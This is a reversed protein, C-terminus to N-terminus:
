KLQLYVALFSYRSDYIFNPDFQWLKLEDFPPIGFESVQKAVFDSRSAYDGPVNWPEYGEELMERILLKAANPHPARDAIVLITPYAVGFVPECNYVPEWEYVGPKTDRIKSFTTFGVPPNEQTVDGVSEAIRSTSEEFILGNQILRYLWEIAANPQSYPGGPDSEVAEIVAESYETLPEGFKLEYAAAMEDPHQLITQIVSAQVGGSIPDPMLVRGRWEETTLDWLNSIPPEDYVATNYILIRSSWRQVLLPEMENPELYPVVSDPVFNWVMNQPLFEGVLSPQENNFLVDAQFVGAKYERRYKEMQTDSALDYGIVEIGYKNQFMEALESYRSSVSYIVVQGEEKAAAEIADWDQVEPAYPGLQAAKLWEKQEPLLRAVEYPEPEEGTEVQQNTITAEGEKETPTACSSIVTILIVLPLFYKIKM